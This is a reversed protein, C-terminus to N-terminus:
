INQLYSEIKDEMLADVDGNEVAEGYMALTTKINKVATAGSLLKGQAAGEFIVRAFELDRNALYALILSETVIDTPALNTHEERTKNLQQINANYINLSEDVNFKANALIQVCLIRAKTLDSVTEPIYAEAFQLATENASKYGQYTLSLFAEFFLEEEKGPHASVCMHYLEMFSKTDNKFVGIIRLIQKALPLDSKHLEVAAIQDLLEGFPELTDISKVSSVVLDWDPNLQRKIVTVQENINKSASEEEETIHIKDNKGLTDILKYLLEKHAMIDEFPFEKGALYLQYPTLEDVRDIFLDISPKYEFIYPLLFTAKLNLCSSVLKNIIDIAVLKSDQIKNLLLMAHVVDFLDHAKKGDKIDAPDFYVVKNLVTLLVEDPLENYIGMYEVFLEWSSSVRGPNNKLMALLAASTVSQDIDKLKRSHISAIGYEYQSLDEILKNHILASQEKSLTTVAKLSEGIKQSVTYPDMDEFASPIQKRIPDFCPHAFLNIYAQTIAPSQRQLQKLGSSFARQFVAVNRYIM